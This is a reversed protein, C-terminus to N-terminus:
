NIGKFIIRKILKNDKHYPCLEKYRKIIKLWSEYKVNIVRDMLNSCVKYNESSTWFFGNKDLKKPWGFKRTQITKCLKFKFDFIALKSGRSIAEYTLTSDTSVVLKALDIRSYTQNPDHDLYRFQDNDILNKYFDYEKLNNKKAGLIFLSLNNKKAYKVLIKVVKEQAKIIDSYNIKNSIKENLNRDRFTSVYLLDYKKKIKKVRFFNSKTGGIIHFKSNVFNNYNKMIHKNFVFMNNVLYKKAQKKLGYKFLISNPEASRWANQIVVKKISSSVDIKYFSLDNDIFTILVRPNVYNIYESLYNKKKLSKYKFISKFLIFLNIIEYRKYLIEYRNKNILRKLIDEGNIDWLLLDKKQPPFFKFNFFFILKLFQKIKKM